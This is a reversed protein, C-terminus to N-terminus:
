SFWEQELFLILKFTDFNKLLLKRNRHCFEIVSTGTLKRYGNQYGGSPCWCPTEMCLEIFKSFKPSVSGFLAHIFLRVSRFRPSTTYIDIM